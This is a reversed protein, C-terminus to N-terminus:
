GGLPVFFGLDVYGNISLGSAANRREEDAQRLQEKLEAMERELRAVRPDGEEVEVDPPLSPADTNREEPELAVAPSAALFSLAITSVQALRPLGLKTMPVSYTDKKRGALYDRSNRM